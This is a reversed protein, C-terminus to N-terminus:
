QHERKNSIKEHLTAEGIPLRMCTWEELALNAPDHQLEVTLSRLGRAAHDHVLSSYKISHSRICICQCDVLRAIDIFAIPVFLVLKCVCNLVDSGLLRVVTRLTSNAGCQKYTPRAKGLRAKGLQVGQDQGTTPPIDRDNGRCEVCISAFLETTSM